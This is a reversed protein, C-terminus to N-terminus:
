TPSFGASLMGSQVVMSIRGSILGDEYINPHMFTFLHRRPVDVLGMCNPGWVRIGATSAIATCREQLARGEPGSRPFVPVRSSSAISQRAAWAELAEARGCRTRHHHGSRGSRFQKWQLSLLPNGPHELLEPKRSLNKGSFRLPSQHHDTRWPQKKRESAGIVAISGPRFFIKM